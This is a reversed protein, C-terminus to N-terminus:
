CKACSAPLDPTVREPSCPASKMDDRCKALEEDDCPSDSDGFEEEAAKVLKSTCEEVGGPYTAAFLVPSCESSRACIAPATYQRTAEVNSVRSSCAIITLAAIAVLRM